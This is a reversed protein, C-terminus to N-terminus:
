GMIGGVVKKNKGKGEDQIGVGGGGVGLMMLGYKGRMLRGGRVEVGDKMEGMLMCEDGGM